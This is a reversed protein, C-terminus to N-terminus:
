AFLQDLQDLFLPFLPKGERLGIVPTKVVIRLQHQAFRQVAFVPAFRARRFFHGRLRDSPLVIEVEHVLQEFELTVRLTFLM